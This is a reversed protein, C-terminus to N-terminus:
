TRHHPYAGRALRGPEHHLDVFAAVLTDGRERTVHTGREVDIQTV